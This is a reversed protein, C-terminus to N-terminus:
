NHFSQTYIIFWNVYLVKSYRLIQLTNNMRRKQSFCCEQLSLVIQFVKSCAVHNQTQFFFKTYGNKMLFNGNETAGKIKCRFCEFPANSANQHSCFALVHRAKQLWM